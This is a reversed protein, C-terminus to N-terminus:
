NFYFYLMIGNVLNNSVTSKFTYRLPSNIHNGYYFGIKYGISVYKFVYYDFGFNIGIDLGQKHKTGRISLDLESIVKIKNEDIIHVGNILSFYYDITSRVDDALDIPKTLHTFNQYGGFKLYYRNFLFFKMFFGPLSHVTAVDKGLGFKFQKTMNESKDNESYGNITLLLIFIIIIIKSYIM